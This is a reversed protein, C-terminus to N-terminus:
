MVLHSPACISMVRPKEMIATNMYRIRALRSVGVSASTRTGSANASTTFAVPTPAGVSSPTTSEIMSEILDKAGVAVSRNKAIM